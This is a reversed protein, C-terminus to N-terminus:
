EQEDQASPNYPPLEDPTNINLGVRLCRCVDYADETAHHTVGNNELGAREMCQQLNPPRQDGLELFLIAPDLGRQTFFKKCIQDGLFKADFSWFNKGAVPLREGLVKRSAKHLDPVGEEHIRASNWMSLLGSQVHMRMAIPEWKPALGARPTGDVYTQRIEPKFEKQGLDDYVAAIEIVGCDLHHLGTTEIDVSVYKM